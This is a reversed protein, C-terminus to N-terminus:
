LGPGSDDFYESSDEFDALTDTQSSENTVDGKEIMTLVLYLGCLAMLILLLSRKM